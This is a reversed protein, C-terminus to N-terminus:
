MSEIQSGIKNSSGSFYYCFRVLISIITSTRPHLEGDCDVSLVCDDNGNM